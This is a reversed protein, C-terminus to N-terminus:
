SLASCVITCNPGRHPLSWNKVCVHKNEDKIFFHRKRQNEEFSNIPLLRPNARMVHLEGGLPAPTLSCSLQLIAAQNGCPHCYNPANFLVPVSQDCCGSSGERVLPHVRSLLTLSNPTPLRTLFMRDLHPVLGRLSTGMWRSRGMPGDCTM